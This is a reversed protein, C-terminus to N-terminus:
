PTPAIGHSKLWQLSFYDGTSAALRFWHIAAGEDHPVLHGSDYLIGLRWQAPTSGANAAARLLDLGGPASLCASEAGPPSGGIMAGISSANGPTGDSLVRGGWRIAASCDQPVGNRGSFYAGAVLWEAEANHREAEPLTDGLARATWMAVDSQVGPTTPRITLSAMDQGSLHAAYLWEARWYHKQAADKIFADAREGADHTLLSAGVNRNGYVTHTIFVAADYEIVPDGSNAAQIYKESAGELDGAAALAKAQAVLDIPKTSGPSPLVPPGRLALVRGPDALVGTGLSYATALAARAQPDGADTAKQLWYAAEVDDAQTGDGQQLKEAVMRMATADGRQAAALARAFRQQAGAAIPAWRELLARSDLVNANAATQLYALARSVDRPAGHGTLFAQACGYAASADQEACYRQAAIEYPFDLVVYSDPYRGTRLAAEATELPDYTLYSPRVYTTRQRYMAILAAPGPGQSLGPSNEEGVVIGVAGASSVVPCGTETEPSIVSYRISGFDPSVSSVYGSSPSCPGLTVADGLTVSAAVPLPPLMGRMVTLGQVSNPASSAGYPKWVVAPYRLEPKDSFRVYVGAPCGVGSRCGIADGSTLLVSSRLSSWVVFARGHGPADVAAISLATALAIM